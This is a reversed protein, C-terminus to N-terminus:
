RGFGVDLIRRGHLVQPALGNQEGASGRSESRVDSSPKVLGACFEHQRRAVLLGEVPEGLLQTLRPDDDRVKRLDSFWLAQRGLCALDVDEDRVGADGGASAEGGELDLVEVAGDVDVEAGAQDECLRKRRRHDLALLTV